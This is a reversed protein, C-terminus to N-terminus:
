AVERPILVANALLVKRDVADLLAVRADVSSTQAGLLSQIIEQRLPAYKSSRAESWTSTSQEELGRHIVAIVLACMSSLWEISQGHEERIKVLYKQRARVISIFQGLERLYDRSATLAVDAEELKRLFDIERQSQQAKLHLDVHEFRAKDGEFGVYQISKARQTKVAVVHSCAAKVSAATEDLRAHSEPKRGGYSWGTYYSFSVGGVTWEMLPSFSPRFEVFNFPQKPMVVGGILDDCGNVCKDYLYSVSKICKAMTAQDQLALWKEYMPALPTGAMQYREYHFLAQIEEDEHIANYALIRKEEALAQRCTTELEGMAVAAQLWSRLYHLRLLQQKQTLARQAAQRLEETAFDRLTNRELAATFNDENLAQKSREFAEFACHVNDRRLGFLKTLHTHDKLSRDLNYYKKFDLM